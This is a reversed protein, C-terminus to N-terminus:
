VLAPLHDVMEPHHAYYEERLLDMMLNDFLQGNKFIAQRERMSVRFGSKEALRVARPNGSHTFLRAVRL